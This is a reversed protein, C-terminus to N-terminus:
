KRWTRVERPVPFKRGLRDVSYKLFSSLTKTGVREPESQQSIQNVLKIAAVSRDLGKFYGLIPRAGPRQVEVVSNNYLSFLFTFEDVLTWKDEDDEAAVVARSPPQKQRPDAIQHPYIPVLHFRSAKLERDERFVDVRAMDKRGATGGRVFVAPKADARLRVKRIIDDKPTRGLNQLPDKPKPSRPLADAPKGAEIWKRLVAVTAANRDNGDKVRTLDKLTLEEILKREYVITKGDQERVQRITAAHAEGRARRREPRAVFVKDLKAQAQERFGPWPPPVGAFPRRQGASEEDQVRRTMRQLLSESCAAVIMADLAHHRDDPLRRGDPGKKRGELGWVQRLKSTLAGPRAFVHRKATDGETQREDQPYWRALIELLVRCAYRTDNLNRTRFRSEVEAANRRLYFGGKKGGRMEKCSEVRASFEAWRRPDKGLWEFPTRNHKDQNARACVLAKNRFSDDGFRSWPLIHDVQYTNDNAFVGPLPIHDGTYLCIGGQEKWLEYRLLDEGSPERAPFRETLEGKIREKTRTRKDLGATIKDREESGKGVDRALEVHIRDPLGTPGFLHKHEHIVTHVQKLMQALAKRAVPNAIDEIASQAQTAHNYGAEAFAEDVALGRRLGVNVARVTKAAIHAAGKFGSFRGERAAQLLLDACLPEMGTEHLGSEISALDERFTLIEAARDLRHPGANFTRWGAEGLVRRLACTGEAAGGTRAAIDRGEDAPSVGEFRVGVALDLRLRLQKFTLKSQEGFGEIALSIQEPTLKEEGGRTLLRLNRLRSLLRFLEFSPARKATRREAPEHTCFGVKGDSDSLPLQNFALPTFADELQQKAFTSGFRRQATFIRVAEHQLDSRQVTRAYDGRNRKRKIWEPDSTALQAVTRGELRETTAAVARLMSSTDSPANTGRDRKSNSRFGRHRAIHGLAVALEHGTLLRTLAAVRLDWPDCGPQWRLADSGAEALLGHEHFLKRLGDMRQRRRRIVRRQGRHQRRIANTPTREKPTEPADFCWSGAAVIHREAENLLAWGVSAIGGDIGLVYTM